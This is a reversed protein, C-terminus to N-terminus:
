SIKEAKRDELTITVLISPGSASTNLLLFVISSNSPTAEEGPGNSSEVLGGFSSGSKGQVKTGTVTPAMYAILGENGM